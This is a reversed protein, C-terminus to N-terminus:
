FNYIENVLFNYFHPHSELHHMIFNRKSGVNCVCCYFFLEGDIYIEKIVDSGITKRDFNSTITLFNEPPIHDVPVMKERFDNANPIYGPQM